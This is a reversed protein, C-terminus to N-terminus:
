TVSDDSDDAPFGALVTPLRQVFRDAKVALEYIEQSTKELSFSMYNQHVLQNRMRGVEVFARADDSFAEDSRVLADAYTKFGPGFWSWFKNVNSSEWDFLTHYQRKLAKQYVFEVGVDSSGMRDQFYSRIMDLVTSEFSSAAALLLVKPALGEVEAAFSPEGSQLLFSRVEEYRVFLIRITDIM